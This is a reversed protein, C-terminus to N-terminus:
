ARQRRCHCRPHGEGANRSAGNRRAMAIMRHWSSHFQVGDIREGQRSLTHLEPKFHNADAAAKKALHPPLMVRLGLAPLRPDPYCLGYATDGAGNWAALVGLIVTSVANFFWLTLVLAVLWVFLVSIRKAWPPLARSGAVNSREDGM